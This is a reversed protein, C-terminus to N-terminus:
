SSISFRIGARNFRDLHATGLAVSPTISGAVDPTAGEEALLLGAEGLMRSTALYGPHGDAEVDIRIYHGAATRGDLGLSWSWDELRSGTPGFGSKPLATRMLSAARGRVSPRARTLARFGAQTGGLAAAALYRLPMTAATGAVAMGERYRVPIGHRGQEEARLFVSRQIVAPNIFAAPTMPALVDGGPGVRPSLSIPSRRRIEAAAGPDPVLVAPDAVQSAGEAALVEPTGQLTGGSVVDGFGIRGAPQRVHVAVDARDLEEGWRERATEAALAVAIDPPLAEFGCAHVLKVGAAVARRHYREIMRRVFPMEGSLDAYHTGSQVCADIVPEGYLTYPGVLDLVVRARSAMAVLSEPKATDAVITEPAEVGVEALVKEIRGADRGAAAWRMGTEGEREALYAAVNRGAVGTAGFVVVSLDRDGSAAM